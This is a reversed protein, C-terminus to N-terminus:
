VKANKRGKRAKANGKRRNSGRKTGKTSKISTISEIEKVWELRAMESADGRRRGLNVIRTYGGVRDTFNPAIKNFLNDATERDNGLIAYVKRMKAVGKGKALNVLKEIQRQVTKAKTQTTEISGHMILARTQSRFLARRSGSSRGLKRGFVRKKM